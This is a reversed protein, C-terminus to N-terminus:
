KRITKKKEREMRVMELDEEEGGKSIDRYLLYFDSLTIWKYLTLTEEKTLEPPFQFTITPTQGAIAYNGLRESTQM